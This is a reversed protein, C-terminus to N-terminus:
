PVQQRTGIMDTFWSSYMSSFPVDVLAICVVEELTFQKTRTPLAACPSHSIDVISFLHWEVCNLDGQVKTKANNRGCVYPNAKTLGSM